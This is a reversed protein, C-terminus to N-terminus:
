LNVPVSYEFKLFRKLVCNFHDMHSNDYAVLVIKM